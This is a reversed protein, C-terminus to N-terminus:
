RPTSTRRARSTQASRRAMPHTRHKFDTCPKSIIATNIMQPTEFPLTVRAKVATSEPASQAPVLASRFAHPAGPLAELTMAAYDDLDAEHLAVYLDDALMDEDRALAAATQELLDLLIQPLKQFGKLHGRM